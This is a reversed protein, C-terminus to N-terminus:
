EQRKGLAGPSGVQCQLVVQAPFGLVSDKVATFYFIQAVADDYECGMTGWERGGGSTWFRVVTKWTDSDTGNKNKQSFSNSETKFQFDWNGIGNKHTKEWVFKEEKLFGMM